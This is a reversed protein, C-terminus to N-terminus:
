INVTRGGYHSLRGYPCKSRFFHYDRLKKKKKILNDKKRKVSKIVSVSQSKEVIWKNSRSCERNEFGGDYM